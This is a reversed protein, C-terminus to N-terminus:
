FRAQLGGLRWKKLVSLKLRKLLLKSPLKKSGFSGVQSWRPPGLGELISASLRFFRHQFVICKRCRNQFPEPRTKSPNKLRKKLCVNVFIAFARKGRFSSFYQNERPFICIKSMDATNLLLCRIKSKTLLIDTKLKIKQTLLVDFILCFCAPFKIEIKSEIQVWEPVMKPGNQARRPGYHPM